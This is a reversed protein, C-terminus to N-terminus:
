LPKQGQLSQFSVLLSMAFDWSRKMETTTPPQKLSHVSVTTKAAVQLKGPLIIHGVYDVYDILVLFPKLKLSM